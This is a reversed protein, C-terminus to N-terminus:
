VAAGNDGLGNRLLQLAVEDHALRAGMGAHGIGGGLFALLCREPGARGWRRWLFRVCYLFSSLSPPVTYSTALFYIRSLSFAEEGGKEEAMRGHGYQSGKGGKSSGKEEQRTTGLEWQNIVVEGRGRACVTDSPPSLTFEAREDSRGKAARRGRQLPLLLFSPPSHPM